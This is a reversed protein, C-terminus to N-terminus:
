IYLFTKSSEFGDFAYTRHVEALCQSSLTQEMTYEFGTVGVLPATLFCKTMAFWRARQHPVGLTNGEPVIGRIKLCRPLFVLSNGNLRPAAVGTVDTVPECRCVKRVAGKRTEYFTGSEFGNSLVTRHVTELNRSSPIQVKHAEQTLAQIAKKPFFAHDACFSHVKERFFAIITKDSWM